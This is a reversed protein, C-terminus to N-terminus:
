FPINEDEAENEEANKLRLTGLRDRTYKWAGAASSSAGAITAAIAAFLMNQDPERANGANPLYKVVSPGKAKPTQTYAPMQTETPQPTFTATPVPSSTETVAPTATAPLSTPTETPAPTPTETPTSTSTPTPTEANCDFNPTTPSPKDAGSAYYWSEQLGFDPGWITYFGDLDEPKDKTNEFIWDTQIGEDGQVFQDEPPCYCQLINGNQLSYVDDSGELLGDGVIWHLGTDYHAIDGPPTQDECNPFESFPTSTATATQTPTSTETPTSTPTSTETPTPTSTQTAPTTTPTGTAESTPTSTLGPTATETPTPTFTLTPMPTETPTQTGPVGTSTPTPTSTETPEPTKTPTQSAVTETPKPTSTKTPSVVPTFTLTPTSTPTIPTATETPTSTAPIPTSTETSTPTATAEPVECNNNYIAQNDSDWNRGDSDWDGPPIIDKGNQHNDSNHGSGSDVANDDVTIEVYPNNDSGTTHCITVKQDKEDQSQTSSETTSQPIAPAPAEQKPPASQATEPINVNLKGITEVTKETVNYTRVEGDSVVNDHAAGMSDALQFAQTDDLKTGIKGEVDDRIAWIVTDFKQPRKSADLKIEVKEGLASKVKEKTTLPRAPNSNPSELIKDM